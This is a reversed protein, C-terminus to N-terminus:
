HSRKRRRAAAARDSLLAAVHDRDLDIPVRDFQVTYAACQFVSLAFYLRYRLPGAWVSRPPQWFASKRRSSKHQTQM